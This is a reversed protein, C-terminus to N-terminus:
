ERLTSSSTSRISAPGLEVNPLCVTCQKSKATLFQQTKFNQTTDAVHIASSLQTNSMRAQYWFISFWAHVKVSVFLLM